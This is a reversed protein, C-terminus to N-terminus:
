SDQRRQIHLLFAMLLYFGTFLIIILSNAIGPMFARFSALHLFAVIAGALLIWDFPNSGTDRWDMNRLLLLVILCLALLLTVLIRQLTGGSLLYSATGVALGALLLEEVRGRDM